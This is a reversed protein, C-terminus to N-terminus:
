AIELNMIILPCVHKFCCMKFHHLWGCYRIKFLSPAVHCQMVVSAIFCLAKLDASVYNLLWLLEPFCICIEAYKMVCIIQCNNLRVTHTVPFFFFLFLFSFSSCLCFFSPFFSLVTQPPPTPYERLSYHGEGDILWVSPSISHYSGMMREEEGRGGERRGTISRQWGDSQIEEPWNEATGM